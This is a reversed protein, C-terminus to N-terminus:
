GFDEALGVDVAPEGDAFQPVPEKFTATAQRRTKDELVPAGIKKDRKQAGM